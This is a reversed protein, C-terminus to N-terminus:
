KVRSQKRIHYQEEIKCNKWELTMKLRNKKKKIRLNGIEKLIGGKKNEQERNQWHSTYQRKKATNSHIPISPFLPSFLQM